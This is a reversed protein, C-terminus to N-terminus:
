VAMRTLKEAIINTAKVLETLEDDSFVAFRELFDEHMERKIHEVFDKAEDTLKIRIIRRNASDHMREIFGKEVLQAVARTAQENSTNIKSALGSMTLSGNVGLTLMIVQQTRTIGYKKKDFTDFVLKRCVPYIRFLSNIYEKRENETM